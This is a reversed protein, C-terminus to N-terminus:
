QEGKKCKNITGKIEGLEKEVNMLCEQTKDMRTLVYRGLIVITAIGIGGQVLGDIISQTIETEIM